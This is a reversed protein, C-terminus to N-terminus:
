PGPGSRSCTRAAGRRADVRVELEPDDVALLGDGVRARTGTRQSPIGSGRPISQANLLPTAPSGLSRHAITTPMAARTGRGPGSRPAAGASPRLRPPARARSCSRGPAASTSPASDASGSRATCREPAALVTERVVRPQPRVLAETRRDEIRRGARHRHGARSVLPLLPRAKLEGLVAVVDHGAREHRHAELATRPM